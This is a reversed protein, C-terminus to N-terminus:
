IARFPWITHRAGPGHTPWSTSDIGPVTTDYALVIEVASLVEDNFFYVPITVEGSLYSLVPDVRVIDPIGPDARASATLVLLIAILKRL